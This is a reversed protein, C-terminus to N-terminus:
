GRPKLLRLERNAFDIDVRRFLALADMGLLLAPRKDLRFQRFPAAAAFAVPLNRIQMGGFGVQDLRTYGVQMADGTVSTLELQEAGARAVLKELAANGISVATGTDLVVRIPRGRYTADGVVLQGLYSKARVVIEDAGAPPLARRRKESPSVAMTQREFDISVKHGQLTDIGLLGPAGLHRAALAPAEIAEGGFTGVKISPILATTVLSRGTMATLMVDRGRALKLVNALERSIVTRQAGTDIIFNWPGGIRGPGHGIEVPVTMRDDQSVLRLVEADSLPLPDQNFSASAPAAALIALLAYFGTRM